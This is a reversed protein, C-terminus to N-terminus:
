SYNKTTFSSQRLSSGYRTRFIYDPAPKFFNCIVIPKRALLAYEEVTSSQFSVVVDSSLLFDQIDGTQHVPYWLIKSFSDLSDYESLISSSPHIKVVLSMENTNEVIKKVVEKVAFDRQERTWFGHEYLTSPAFLVRIAGDKKTPLTKSLKNFISDYMPNGTIILSSRKLDEKLFYKSLKKM